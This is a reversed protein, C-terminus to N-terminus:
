EFINENYGQFLNQMFTDTAALNGFTLILRWSWWLAVLQKQEGDKHLIQHWTMTSRKQLLTKLIRWTSQKQLPYSSWYGPINKLKPGPPQWSYPHHCWCLPFAQSFSLRLWNRLHTFVIGICRRQTTCSEGLGHGIPLSASCARRFGPYESTAGLHLSWAPGRIPQFM